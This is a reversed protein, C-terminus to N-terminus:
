NTAECARPQIGKEKAYSAASAEVMPRVLSQDTQVWDSISTWKQGDWQTFRVPAGGEHDLCSTKFTPVLKDAGLQKLRDSSLDLHELGWQMQEGTIPKGKGFKEQAIRIAEMTVVGIVVGRNYRITGVDQEMGNGKGKGYAHKLIEQMVPYDRGSGHMAAAIYGTASSGAPVADEEAGSWYNGVLHDRPFGIGAAEKIATQTMLGAGQMVVWDPRYQRIQLWVAKQDLGPSAVPMHKIEFGYKDALKDLIAITEKGYASDHYLDVIKRGKLKDKGGERAGVFKIIATAQSWFNTILPFAYPFYRGDTADTRGNGIMILPIKDAQSKELVAYALGTGYPNWLTAGTQGQNKLREYCEVMRDPQYATECEEWVLKVGNIGGDRENLMTMYDMYGVMPPTGFGGMPGTRYITMPIFQESQQAETSSPAALCALMTM